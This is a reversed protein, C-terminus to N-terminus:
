VEVKLICNGIDMRRMTKITVKIIYRDTMMDDLGIVKNRVMRLNVKSTDKLRVESHYM